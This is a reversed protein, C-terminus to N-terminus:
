KVTKPLRYIFSHYKILKLYTPIFIIKETLVIKKTIECGLSIGATLAYRLVDKNLVPLTGPMGTCVPCCHTNPKGGFETTCSCFIKSKTALEVHIELGIVTDFSM